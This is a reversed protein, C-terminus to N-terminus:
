SLLEGIIPECFFAILILSIIVYESKRMFIDFRNKSKVDISEEKKFEMSYKLEKNIIKNNLL